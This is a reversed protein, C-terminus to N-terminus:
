FWFITYEASEKCFKDPFFRAILRNVTSIKHLDPTVQLKPHVRRLESFNKFKELGRVKKEFAPIPFDKFKVGSRKFIITYGTKITSWDHHKERTTRIEYDKKNESIKKYNKINDKDFRFTHVTGDYIPYKRMLTCYDDLPYELKRKYEQHVDKWHSIDTYNIGHFGFEGNWMVSHENGEKSFHSATMEDAFVMGDKELMPRAFRSIFVDEPHLPVNVRQWNKSLWSILKKSRLSFGGNGVHLDGLHYWPAGIYDYKLFDSSWANTNLIFGDYQFVIAFDTDIYNDLEKIM